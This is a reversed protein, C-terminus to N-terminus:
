DAKKNIVWDPDQKDPRKHKNPWMFLVDDEKLDQKLSISLFVKNEGTEPDKFTKKWANGVIPFKFSQNQDAM